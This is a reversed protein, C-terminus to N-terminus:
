RGTEVKRFARPTMGTLRKFQRNLHSQDCFGTGMAVDLMSTDAALLLQKAREVRAHVVFQYPTQGTSQKFAKSFRSPSIGALEELESLRMPRSLSAQIYDRLEGLTAKGLREDRQELPAEGLDLLAAVVSQLIGDVFLDQHHSQRCLETWLMDLLAPIRPDEHARDFLQTCRELARAEEPGLRESICGKPIALCLAEFTGHGRFSSYNDPPIVVFSGPRFSSEFRGHQLDCELKASGHRLVQLGLFPTPPDDCAEGRTRVLSIPTTGGELRGVVKTPSLWSLYPSDEAESKHSRAPM